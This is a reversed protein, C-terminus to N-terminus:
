RARRRRRLLLAALLLAAASGTPTNPGPSGARCACGEPAPDTAAHDIDDPEADNWEPETPRGLEALEDHWEAPYESELAETTTAVDQTTQLVPLKVTGTSWSRADVYVSRKQPEFGKKTIRLPWVGCEAGKIRFNGHSDTKKKWRGNAVSVLAGSVAKGTKKSRVKGRIGGKCFPEQWTVGIHTSARRPTGDSPRNVIGKGGIWMTSSGGGDHNLADHAGLKLMYAGLERTTMGAAGKRRGDVVVLYLFKGAQDVGSATRPHRLECFGGGCSKPAVNKGDKVLLPRGGVAQRYFRPVDGKPLHNGPSGQYEVLNDPGFAVFGEDSDAHWVSGNSVAMGSPEFSSLAFLDGNIAATAGYKKAFEPTTLGKHSARNVRFGVHKSRLNIRLVHIKQSKTSVKEFAIGPKIQQYDARAEASWLAVLFLALGLPLWRWRM